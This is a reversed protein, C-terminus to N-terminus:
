SIIDEASVVPPTNDSDDSTEAVAIREARERNSKVGTLDVGLDHAMRELDAKSMKLLKALEADDTAEVSPSSVAISSPSPTESEEQPSTNKSGVIPSAAQTPPDSLAADAPPSPIVYAAVGLTVLRAAEEDPVRIQQGRAIAKVQGPKTRLGYAGQTIVIEMM